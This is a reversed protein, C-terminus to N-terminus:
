CFVSSLCLIRPIRSQNKTRYKCQSQPLLTRITNSMQTIFHTESCLVECHCHVLSRVVVTSLQKREPYVSFEFESELVKRVALAAYCCIQTQFLSYSFVFYNESYYKALKKEIM